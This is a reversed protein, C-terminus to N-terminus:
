STLKSALVYGDTTTAQALVWQNQPMDVRDTPSSYDVLNGQREYDLTIEGGLPREIRRLPNTKELRNRKIYVNPNGDLKLVHEVNGDGDIDDFSLHSDTRSGLGPRCRGSWQHRSTIAWTSSSSCDTTAPM